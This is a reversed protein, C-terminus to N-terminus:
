LNGKSRICLTVVFYIFFAVDFCVIYLAAIILDFGIGYTSMNVGIWPLVFGVVMAEISYPLTPIVFFAVLCVIVFFSFLSWKIALFAQVCASFLIAL